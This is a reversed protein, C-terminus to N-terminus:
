DFFEQFWLELTILAWIRHAHNIKTRIHTDLLNKIAKKNFINRSTAKDSLLIEYMYNKMEKRFWHEIPVGFGMKKRYLIEKPVLEKELTQKLIYKKNNLGKLKLNVPIQSTMEMFKHDLFPSRSELAHAMTAIDVKVLLDDPLYTAIDTYITQDIKNNAKAQAFTQVIIDNTIIGKMKERMNESYLSNKAQASFYQIYSLYRKNYPLSLTEAFTQAHNTLTTKFIFNILKAMPKALLNHLPGIKDYWLGFKQVSYRGYGAFNEDGGDGNLAVTVHERTKQSLYYTPLQSSDAYPEEYQYVLTPLLEMANPKVIFKTHDTKYKDAIIQAYKTEDHDSENFGISFTKIPQSSNKAMLAVVASSDIGGSLFAGLPVDAIMRLKVAEELETLIKDEWEKKSLKLKKTYDLQWYKEKKIHGNNCNIILYHAPELKKINKFGTLPAPVYQLTLYHHIATYDIGKKYDPQTLISKLESAFIFTNNNVYYKFPKKGLRDRACILQNKQHDYLAFAFMGRLHELFKIDYKDYLAMIVETDTQSKFQYGLKKLQSREEQFNYIEGNFVITYKKNNHKYHMPQHGLPSLDIISLRQQGLGVKRNPIIYIGSDDPGRHAIAKNMLAIDHESVLHSNNKFYIKGTIGCM